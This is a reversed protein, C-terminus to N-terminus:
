LVGSAQREVLGGVILKGGIAGLLTAATRDIGKKFRRYVERPGRTSLVMAVFAYWLSEILFVSILLSVVFRWDFEAPLFTAFVTSYVVATKPNSLQTILGLGFSLSKNTRGPQDRSPIVLAEKSAKGIKYALYLLYLGGLVKLAGYILPFSLLLLQIGVLALIAYIVGGLGMGLSASVGDGRSLSISRQAIFVFSPGPSVVGIFLVGVIGLVPAIGDM